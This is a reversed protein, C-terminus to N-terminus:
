SGGFLNLTLIDAVLNGGTLELNTFSDHSESLNTSTPLYNFAGNLNQNNISLNQSLLWAIARIQNTTFDEVLSSLKTILQVSPNQNHEFFSQVLEKAKPLDTELLKLNVTGNKDLFVKGKIWSGEELNVM